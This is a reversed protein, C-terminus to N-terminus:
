GTAMRAAKRRLFESKIEKDTRFAGDPKKASTGVPSAGALTSAQPPRPRAEATTAAPPAAKMGMQARLHRAFAELDRELTDLPFAKPDSTLRFRLYEAAEKSRKPDLEPYKGILTEVRSKIDGAMKGIQETRQVQSAREGKRKYRALELDREALQIEIPDVEFGQSKIGAVLREFMGKYHAAEAKVDEIEDSLRANEAHGKKAVDEFAAIKKNAADLDAKVKQSWHDTRQEAKEEQAQSSAPPAKAAEPAAQDVPQEVKAAEAAKQEAKARRKKANRLARGAASVDM